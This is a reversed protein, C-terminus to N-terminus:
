SVLSLGGLVTTDKAIERAVSWSRFVRVVWETTKRTKYPVRMAIAEDLAEDCIPQGFRDSNEAKSHQFDEASDLDPMFDPQIGGLDSPQTYSCAQKLGWGSIIHQVSGEVM